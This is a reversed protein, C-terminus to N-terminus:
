DPRRRRLVLFGIAALGAAMLAYTEPEPVPSLVFYGGYVGPGSGALTLTYSGASLNSFSFGDTPDADSASYGLTSSTLSVGSWTVGFSAIEGFLNSLEGIGFTFSSSFGTGPVVAALPFQQASATSAASALLAAALLPKLTM